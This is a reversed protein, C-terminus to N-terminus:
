YAPVNDGDLEQDLGVAEQLETVARDFDLKGVLLVRGLHFRAEALLAKLEKDTYQEQLRM